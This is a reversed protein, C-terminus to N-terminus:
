LGAQKEIHAYLLKRYTPGDFRKLDEVAVRIDRGWKQAIGLSRLRNRYTRVSCGAAEAAATATVYAPLGKPTNSM